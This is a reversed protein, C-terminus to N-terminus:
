GYFRCRAQKLGSRPCGARQLRGPRGREEFSLEEVRSIIEDVALDDGEPTWSAYPTDCFRCRLNCGSTRVFVSEVGTLRGEGQLSRFIESIRM